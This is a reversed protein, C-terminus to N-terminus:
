GNNNGGLVRKGFIVQGIRILNAGEEIAIKYDNSMGMSLIEMSINKFQKQKLNDYIKKIEKFYFRNEEDTGKPIITMIGKVKCYSCKEVAEILVDLDELLIGNKSEERGINIQILTNAIMNKKSYEKEITNLLKISSLSHILCVKGVIYKVKNTQLKGILHWNIDKPLSNEKELLEQVKNEGFDRQGVEYAEMIDEIPKTKSVAVLKVDSPISNRIKIIEEKISM